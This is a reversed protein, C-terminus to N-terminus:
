EDGPSVRSRLAKIQSRAHKQALMKEKARRSRRRKQRRIKAARQAAASQEGLIAREIKDALLERARYRNLAQSRERQCKVQTATPRHVLVVCTAVKNVNQGGRGGSRVFAEELDEERIGLRAFREELARQKATTVPFMFGIRAKM